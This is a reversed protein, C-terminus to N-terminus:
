PVLTQIRATLASFAVSIVNAVSSSGTVIATLTAALVLAYELLDQGCVEDHFKAVFQIFHM